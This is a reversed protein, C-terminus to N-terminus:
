IVLGIDMVAASHGTTRIAFQAKTVSDYIHMLTIANESINASTGASTPYQTHLDLVTLLIDDFIRTFEVFLICRGHRDNSLSRLTPDPVLVAVQPVQLYIRVPLSSTVGNFSSTRACNEDVDSTM